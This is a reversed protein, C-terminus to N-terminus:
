PRERESIEELLDDRDRHRKLEAVNLIPVGLISPRHVPERVVFMAHGEAVRALGHLIEARHLAARLSGVSALLIEPTRTFADFPARVTVVVELGLDDLRDLVGDRLPDGTRTRPRPSAGRAEGEPPSSTPPPSGARERTPPRAFLEIPRVIPEGFFSEIREIVGLEAGAGEEYLQIARRSVGAVSALTGLSLGRARRLVRLRDGDVRAFTGGPSAYLFPPLAKDLYEQLTEESIIPVGYRTYVVGADLESAGSTQGVVIVLAPFLRGLELLREAEEADLADINKLVKVLLLASDRRAALDFSSPRVGHTDAVYFGARELMQELHEIWRERSRQAM